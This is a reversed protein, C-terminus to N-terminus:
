QQAPSKEFQSNSVNSSDPFSFRYHGSRTVLKTQGDQVEVNTVGRATKLSAGTESIMGSDGVPLVITASSGAPITVNLTVRTGTRSWRSTIKGLVSNYSAFADQTGAVFAPRIIIQEFPARTLDFRIGALGRYFWEEAHGLMFHNQSAGPNADWAETLTTAGRKLQFGYSPSDTRLLMDNLVDSRGEDTLARVVYHFGIDGATVHNNHQRIDDVLRDLVKQKLQSPVLGLVLPMASATQSGKDYQKSSNDFLHTNISSRIASAEERFERADSEKGLVAAIQSLTMLDQYFIATATMSKQTLQSEGPPAPGIDFWDGLGYSIVDDNAKHQLYKVYAVMADYTDGLTKRDGYHHYLIWPSLIIASGWEPSDRFADSNGNEDVFAVFEPAIAPVMGDLLQSNRMDRAMKAYLHSLDYNYFLADGALHTQELWGLKERQPCDTLISVMNSEIAMDILKHIRMFLTNSTFFEGTQPSAAHIFQGKLSLIQADTKSPTLRAGLVEVYRFGYYSFHPHWRELGNGRLTYTFINLSNQSESGSRQSVLRNENLLEGAILKVTSGKPGRVCIEPWGSINQGLDFVLTGPTLQHVSRSGFEQAIKVPAAMQSTLHGGPSNVELVPVWREANFRPADWGKLERRADYDEGGYISSYTIPGSATKWSEDSVLTSTSGDAFTLKMQLLLKSQGFTGIFKTYRGKTGEVNYMGNGLMIGLTNVGPRILRTVNWSNYLITKQYNTWGPNLVTNTVPKGNLHLEYQGLGAVFIIAQTVSKSISFDRRFIPLPPPYEGFTGTREISPTNAPIDPSAAIWHATWDSQHLLGTTWQAVKSWPSRAGTQDWVTVRWYYVHGSVLPKGKYFIGFNKASSIKGSDWMDANQELLPRLSSAVLIRYATQSLGRDAAQRQSLIWSLRPQEADIGVPDISYETKLKAPEISAAILGARKYEVKGPRAATEGSLPTRISLLVIAMVASAAAIRFSLIM